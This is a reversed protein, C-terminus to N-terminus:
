SSKAKKKPKAKEEAPPEPQKIPTTEVKPAASQLVQNVPQTQQDIHNKLELLFYFGQTFAVMEEGTIGPIQCRRLTKLLNDVTAIHRKEFKM